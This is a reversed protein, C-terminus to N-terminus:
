ESDEDDSMIDDISFGLESMAKLIEDMSFETVSGDDGEGDASDDGDDFDRDFDEDLDGDFDEDFDEDLDLEFKVTEDDFDSDFGDSEGDSDGDFSDSDGDFFSVGYDDADSEMEDSTKLDLRLYLLEPSYAMVYQAYDPDNDVTNLVDRLHYLLEDNESDGYRYILAGRFLEPLLPANEDEYELSSIYGLLANRPGEFSYIEFISFLRRVALYARYFVRADGESVNLTLRVFKDLHTILTLNEKPSIADSLIDYCHDMQVIAFLSDDVTMASGAVARSVACLRRLINVTELTFDSENDDLAYKAAALIRPYYKLLRSNLRSEGITMYNLALSLSEKDLHLMDDRDDLMADIMMAVDDTTFYECAGISLYRSLIEYGRKALNHYEVYGSDYARQLYAAFSGLLHSHLLLREEASEIEDIFRDALPTDSEPMVINMSYFAELALYRYYVTDLYIRARATMPYDRYGSDIFSHFIESANSTNVKMKMSVIKTWAIVALSNRNIADSDNSLEGYKDFITQLVTECAESNDLTLCATPVGLLVFSFDKEPYKETIQILTESLLGAGHRRILWDTEAAIHRRKEGHKVYIEALYEAGVYSAARFLATDLEPIYEDTIHECVAKAVYSYGDSDLMEEITGIVDLNTVAYSKDKPNYNLVASLSRTALAFELTSYEWGRTSFVSKIFSENMRVGGYTLVGLLRMVLERNVRSAVLKIIDAALHATDDPLSEVVSIQYRNINEMGDGMARISAFDSSDLMLMRSVALKLYFPSCAEEKKSIAFIVSEDLEKHKEKLLMNIVPIQDEESVTHLVYTRSYDFWPPLILSPEDASYAIMFEFSDHFHVSRGLPEVSLEKLHDDLIRVSLENQLEYSCNDIFSHVTGRCIEELECIREFVSADLEPNGYHTETHEGIGALKEMEYLLIKFYDMECSSYKDLGLVFPLLEKGEDSQLALRFNYALFASKGMGSDGKIFHMRTEVDSFTGDYLSLPQRQAPHYNKSIDLLHREASRIAREQWPLNEENELDSIFAESLDRNVTEIFDGLGTVSQSKGDFRAKYTRISDPYLERIKAKLAEIRLRHEESEALYDAKQEPTMEATDLERFYFFVRKDNAKPMFAGYEIELETVSMDGAIDIGKNKAAECILNADPIWGYREGVLVIMYPRCDDIEDLCVELVRRCGEDSDLSMTNVGWRLDGFYVEEGYDALKENISAAAFTHLADREFQMDKFTSSIFVHKM